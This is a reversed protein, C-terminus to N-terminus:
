GVGQKCLLVVIELRRRSRKVPPATRAPTPTEMFPKQDLSPQLVGVHPALPLLHMSANAGPRHTTYLVLYESVIFPAGRQRAACFARPVLRSPSKAAM